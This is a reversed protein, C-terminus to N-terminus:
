ADPIEPDTKILWDSSFQKRYYVVLGKAVESTYAEDLQEETYPRAILRAIIKYPKRTETTM